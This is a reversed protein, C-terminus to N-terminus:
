GYIKRRELYSSFKAALQSYMIKELGLKYITRGM